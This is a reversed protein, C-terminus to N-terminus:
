TREPPTHGGSSFGEIERKRSELEAKRADFDTKPPGSPPAALYRELERVRSLNELHRSYRGEPSEEWGEIERRRRNWPAVVRKITSEFDAAPEGTAIKYILSVFEHFDGGQAKAKSSSEGPRYREFIGLCEVVFERMVGVTWAGEGQSGLEVDADGAWQAISRLMAVSPSEEVKDLAKVDEWPMGVNRLAKFAPHALGELLDAAQSVRTKIKRLDDRILGIPPASGKARKMRMLLDAVNLIEDKAQQVDEQAQSGLIQLLQGFVPEARRLIALQISEHLPTWYDPRWGSSGGM